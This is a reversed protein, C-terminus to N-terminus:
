NLIALDCFRTGVYRLSVVVRERDGLGDQRAAKAAHEKESLAKRMQDRGNNARRRLTRLGRRPGSLPTCRVRNAWTSNKATSSAFGVHWRTAINRGVLFAALMLTPRRRFRVRDARGFARKHLRYPVCAGSGGEHLNYCTSRGYSFVAHPGRRCRSRLPM